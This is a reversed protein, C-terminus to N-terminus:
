SGEIFLARDAAVDKFSRRKGSPWPMEGSDVKAHTGLGFHQRFMSTGGFRDSGSTSPKFYRNSEGVPNGWDIPSQGHIVRWGSTPLGALL